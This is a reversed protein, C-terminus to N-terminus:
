PLYKSTSIILTLYHNLQGPLLTEDSECVCVFSTACEWMCEYKWLLDSSWKDWMGWIRAGCVCMCPEQLDKHQNLWDKTLRVHGRCSSLLANILKDQKCKNIKESKLPREEGCVCVCLLFAWNSLSICSRCCNFTLSAASTIFAFIKPNILIKLPWCTTFTSWDHSM